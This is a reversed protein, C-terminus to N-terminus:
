LTEIVKWNGSEDRCVKSLEEVSKENVKVIKKFDRCTTGELEYNTLPTIIATKNKDSKSSWVAKEQNENKDLTESIKQNLSLEEEESLINAIKTGLMYGLSGGIVTTINKGIGSGVESGVYAGIAAGILGGILKKDENTECSFVAGLIVVGLVLVKNFKKVKILGGLHKLDQFVYAGILDM